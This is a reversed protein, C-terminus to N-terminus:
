RVLSLFTILSVLHFFSISVSLSPHFLYLTVPIVPPVRLRGWRDKDTETDAQDWERRYRTEIRDGESSALERLLM